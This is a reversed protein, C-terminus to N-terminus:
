GAAPTLREGLVERAAREGSEIAGDMYGCWRTATETGAWHVRGVPRRLAPGFSTWAGPPMYAAYGGRSWPEAAWDVDTYALPRAARPGFARCLCAIVIQRREDQTARGLQRAANGELFALLVGPRSEPPSSDFTVKVPGRDSTLQGSLGSARWFPEDYVALCKIVSGAPMRQLLQARDPPLPPDFAIAAALAPPVAVIAAQAAFSEGDTFVRVGTASQEIRRVPAGLRVREGLPAALRLSLQQAGGLIHDQQAGGKASALLTSDGGAHTYFLAHLLSLDAAEASFVAEAYLRLLGAAGHSHTARQIWSEFTEGDWAAARNAAWPAALPVRRAMRDFRAQAQAFDLLVLPSLRPILGRYSRLQGGWYVLNRGETYTPFTALGLEHVLAYARDQTPGLWQGGVDLSLGGVVPRTWTRGGVRERAELVLVSQGAAALRHAAVLGALGAGVVITDSAEM